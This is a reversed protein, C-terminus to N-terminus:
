GRARNAYGGAVCGLIRMLNALVFTVPGYGDIVARLGGDPNFMGMGLYLATALIGAATAHFVKRGKV